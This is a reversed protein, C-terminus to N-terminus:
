NVARYVEYEVASGKEDVVWHGQGLWVTEEMWKFKDSSTEIRPSIFWEQDGYATSKAEPSGALVKQGAETVKLIGQYETYIVDGSSSRAAFRVNLHATNTSPNLLLGDSSAPHIDAELGAAPGVGKVFGGTVAIFVRRAGNLVNDIQLVDGGVAIYGRVTMCHELKPAM